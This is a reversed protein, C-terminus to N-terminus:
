KQTFNLTIIYKIGSPSILTDGDFRFGLFELFEPRGDFTEEKNALITDTMWKQLAVTKIVEDVQTDKEDLTDLAEYVKKVSEM